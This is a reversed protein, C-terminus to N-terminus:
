NRKTDLTEERTKAMPDIIWLDGTEKNLLYAMNDMKGDGYAFQQLHFRGSDVELQLPLNGTHSISTNAFGIFLAVLLVGLVIMVTHLFQIKM